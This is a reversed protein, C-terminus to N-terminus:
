KSLLPLLGLKLSAFRTRDAYKKQIKSYATEM